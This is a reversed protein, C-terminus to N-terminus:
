CKENFFGKFKQTIEKEIDKRPSNNKFNLDSNGSESCFFEKMLELDVREELLKEKRFHQLNVRIGLDEKDGFFDMKLLQYAYGVGKKTYVCNYYIALLVEESYYSRLIGLYRSKEKHNKKSSYIENITKIIRYSNRFFHGVSGYYDEFINEIVQSTEEYNADKILYPNTKNKFANLIRFLTFNKESMKQYYTNLIVKNKDYKTFRELFSNEKFLFFGIVLKKIADKDPDQMEENLDELISEFYKKISKFDTDAIIEELAQKSQANNKLEVIFESVLYDIKYDKYKLKLRLDEMLSSIDRQHNLLIESHSDLLNSLFNANQIENNSVINKYSFYSVTGVSALAAIASVVIYFSQDVPKDKSIVLVSVIQIVIALLIFILYLPKFKDEKAFILALVSILIFGLSIYLLWDM